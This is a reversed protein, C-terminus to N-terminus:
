IETMKRMETAIFFHSFYLKDLPIPLPFVAVSSIPHGEIWFDGPDIILLLHILIQRLIAKAQVQPDFDLKAGMTNVNRAEGLSPTYICEWTRANSNLIGIVLNM